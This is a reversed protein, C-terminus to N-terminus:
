LLYAQTYKEGSRISPPSKDKEILTENVGPETAEAFISDIAKQFVESVVIKILDFSTTIFDDEVKITTSEEECCECNVECCSDAEGFLAYSFLEGGSYHKNITIGITSAVVLLGLGISLIRKM